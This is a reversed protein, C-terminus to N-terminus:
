GLRLEDFFDPLGWAAHLAELAVAPGVAGGLESATAASTATCTAAPAREAEPFGEVAGRVAHLTQSLPDGECTVLEGSSSGIHSHNRM